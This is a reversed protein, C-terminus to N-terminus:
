PPPCKEPALFTRDPRNEQTLRVVRGQWRPVLRRLGARLTLKFRDFPRAAAVLLLCIAAATTLDLVTRQPRLFGLTAALTLLPCHMLYIAFTGDALHRFRRVWLNRATLTVLDAILLLLLMAVAALAAVALAFLTARRPQQHLLLLPNPLSSFAIVARVPLTLLAPHGCAYLGVAAAAVAVTVRRLLRAAFHHRLAHHLDYVLCGFWWAPLLLLVQPGAVAAWLSLALARRAGRLFFALAYALYFLCEYSLSWFPTDVFPITNHGWSQSLFLLNLGIRTVPDDSVGAWFHLYYHPALLYVLAASILTLAMAPLAVSYIRAARDIAFDLLTHERSRTLFRIVFGSLVFFIPVAIDGLLQRDRFGTHFEPHGLHAAVVMLAATFRILDLLFSASPSLIHSNAFTRALLYPKRRSAVPAARSHKSARSPM